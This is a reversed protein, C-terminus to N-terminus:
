RCRPQVPTRRRTRCAHSPAVSAAAPAPPSRLAVLAAGDDRKQHNAAQARGDVEQDREVDLDHLAAGAQLGRHGDDGVRQRDEGGRHQDDAEVGPQGRALDGAIAKTTTAVPRARSANVIWCRSPCAPPSGRAPRDEAQAFARQQRQQEVHQHGARRFLQGAVHARHAAHGVVERGGQARGEGADHRHAQEAQEDEVVQRVVRGDRGRELGLDVEVADVEDAVILQQAGSLAVVAVGACTASATSMLSAARRRARRAAKRIRAPMASSAMM